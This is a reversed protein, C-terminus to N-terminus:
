YSTKIHIAAIKRKLFFLFRPYNTPKKKLKMSFVIMHSLQSCEKEIELLFSLEQNLTDTYHLYNGEDYLDGYKEFVEINQKRLASGVNYDNAEYQLIQNILYLSKIEELRQDVLILQEDASLGELESAIIRYASSPARGSQPRVNTWLLFLNVFVLSLLCTICVRNQFIKKLEASLLKM